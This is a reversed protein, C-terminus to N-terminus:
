LLKEAIEIWSGAREYGNDKVNHPSNFLITNGDFEDLNFSRDDILLDGKLIFKYGCMIRYHWSIFPFYEDLWDSKERLSNPFQTAATAIYSGGGSSDSSSDDDFSNAFDMDKDPYFELKAGICAGVILNPQIGGVYVYDPQWHERQVLNSEMNYFPHDPFRRHLFEDIKIDQERRHLPDMYYPEDFDFGGQDHLWGKSISTLLEISM